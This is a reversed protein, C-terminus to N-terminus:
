FKREDKEGTEKDKIKQRNEGLFEVKVNNVMHELLKYIEEQKEGDMDMMLIANWEDLAKEIHPQVNHGEHTLYIKNCRQDCEDKVKKVFGKIVLTQIARAVASKDIYLHSSLEEQTVGNSRNLYILIPYEGSTINYPELAQGFYIQSKRYLISNLRGIRRTM